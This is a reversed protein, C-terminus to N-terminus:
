VLVVEVQDAASVLHYFVAILEKGLALEHRQERSRVVTALKVVSTGHHTNILSQHAGELYQLRSVFLFERITGTILLASGHGRQTTSCCLIGPFHLSSVLATLNPSELVRFNLGVHMRLKYLGPRHLSCCRLAQRSEHCNFRHIDNYYLFTQRYIKLTSVSTSILHLM